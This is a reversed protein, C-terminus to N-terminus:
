MYYLPVFNSSFEPRPRRPQSAAYHHQLIGDNWLFKSVGDKPHRFLVELFLIFYSTYRNKIHQTGEPSGELEM